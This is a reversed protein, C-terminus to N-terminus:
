NVSSFFYKIRQRRLEPELEPNFGGERAEIINRWPYGANRKKMISLHEDMSRILRLPNGAYVAGGEVKGAIVSGSGIITNPGIHAGPLIISEVGIFVNDAILVPAVSDLKLNFARNLMNVSGDHGFVKGGAIRVNSGISTMHPDTFLVSPNIACHEGFSQFGGHRRLYESWEELSPNGFRRWLGVRTGNKIASKQLHRNVIRIM